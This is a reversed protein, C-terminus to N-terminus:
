SKNKEKFISVAQQFMQDTLTSFYIFGIYIVESADIGTRTNVVLDYTTLTPTRSTRLELDVKPGKWSITFARDMFEPGISNNYEEHDMDQGLLDELKHIYEGYRNM